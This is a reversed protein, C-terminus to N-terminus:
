SINSFNPIGVCIKPSITKYTLKTLFVYGFVMIAYHAAIIAGGILWLGQLYFQSYWLGFYMFINNATDTYYDLKEGYKSTTNTIRALTGDSCDLIYSLFYFFVGLILNNYFFCIGALLAVPVTIVTISNPSIKLKAFLRALPTGFVRGIFVLTWAESKKIFHEGKRESYINKIFSTIKGM